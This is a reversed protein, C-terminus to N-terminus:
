RPLLAVLREVQEELDGTGDLLVDARGLWPEVWHEHMPRVQGLYQEFVGEVTRGREAVDRRARRILRVDAPAIVAATLDFRARLRDDALVLIGEVVVIPQPELRDTRAARRHTAFEYVPLEIPEGARLRDLDAVLRTTDLAEPHDFNVRHPEPADHYYRDHAILAAGVREAVRWALTTKGSATGGGIGVVFPRRM